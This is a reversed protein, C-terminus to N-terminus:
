MIITLKISSPFWRLMRICGCINQFPSAFKIVYYIDHTPISRVCNNAFLVSQMSLFCVHSKMM